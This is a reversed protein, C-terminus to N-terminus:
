NLCYRQPATAIFLKSADPKATAADGHFIADFTGHAGRNGRVKGHAEAAIRAAESEYVVPKVSAAMPPPSSPTKTTRATKTAAASNTKNHDEENKAAGVVVLSTTTTTTKVVNREKDEDLDKNASSNDKTTQHKRKNNKKERKDAVRKDLLYKKRAPLDDDDLLVKVTEGPGYEQILNDLGVEDVAAEALMRGNFIVFPKSGDFVQGSVPCETTAVDVVDRLGRIHDLHAPLSKAAIAELLAEKTFLQGLFDAVIPRRLPEASLACTEARMRRRRKRDVGEEADGGTTGAGYNQGGAWRGRKHSSEKTGRMLSRKVAIVGGDNGM